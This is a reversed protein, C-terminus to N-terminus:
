FSGTFIFHEVVEKQPLTSLTSTLICDNEWWSTLNTLFSFLRVEEADFIDDRNLVMFICINCFSTCVLVEKNM